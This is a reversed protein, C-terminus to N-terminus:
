KGKGKRKGAGKGAPKKGAPGEKEGAAEEVQGAEVQGLAEAQETAKRPRGAKRPEAGEASPEARFAETSVGLADALRCVTEWSPQRRGRELQGLGDLTLGAKNALEGQTMGAAERLEKLRGAFWEWSEM